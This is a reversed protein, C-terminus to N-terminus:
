FGEKIRIVKSNPIREYRMRVGDGIILVSNGGCRKLLNRPNRDTTFFIRGREDVVKYRM